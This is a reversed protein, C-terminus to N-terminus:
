LHGQGICMGFEIKLKEALFKNYTHVYIIVKLIYPKSLGRPQLYCANHLPLILYAHM